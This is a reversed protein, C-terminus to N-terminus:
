SLDSEKVDFRSYDAPLNPIISPREKHVKDIEALLDMAKFSAYVEHHNHLRPFSNVLARCRARWNMRVSM